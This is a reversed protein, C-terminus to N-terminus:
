LNMEFKAKITTSVFLVDNILILVSLRHQIQKMNIKLIKLISIINLNVLHGSDLHFKVLLKTKMLSALRM